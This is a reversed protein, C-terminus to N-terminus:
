MKKYQVQAFYLNLFPKRGAADVSSRHIGGLLTVTRYKSLAVATCVKVRFVKLKRHDWWGTCWLSSSDATQLRKVCGFFFLVFVISCNKIKDWAPYDPLNGM